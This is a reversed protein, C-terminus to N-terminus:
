QLAPANGAPPPEEVRELKLQNFPGPQIQKESDLNVRKRIIREGLFYSFVIHRATSPGSFYGPTELVEVSLRSVGGIPREPEVPLDAEDDGQDFPLFRVSTMIHDPGSLFVELWQGQPMHWFFQFVGALSM